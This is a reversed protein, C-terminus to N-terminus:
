RSTEVRFTTQTPTLSSLWVAANTELVLFPSSKIHFLKYINRAGSERATLCAPAAGAGIAPTGHLERASRM